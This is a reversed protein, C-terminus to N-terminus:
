GTVRHGDGRSGSASDRFTMETKQDAPSMLTLPNAFSCDVKAIIAPQSNAPRSALAQIVYACKIRVGMRARQGGEGDEWKHM